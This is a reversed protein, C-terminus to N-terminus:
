NVFYKKQIEKISEEELEEKKEKGADGIARLDKDSLKVLELIKAELYEKTNLKPDELVEELLAHLLWGIRPGAKEGTVEMIRKGDIALMGVSIPDRLAEEIMAQYKRLRFPQEKPRGTGIRDCIRLEILKEINDRGVNTIIRRVASLTIKDPDSFFMHWRVMREANEITERSFKLAELAKKTIRAGVVDHGHFTWDHKEDSWRRSAPKGIDHFLAALRVEFSWNKDAAHQLARINHEFVDFSHAQNQEVGIGKELDPAIYGLIGISQALIIANMPKASNLIRVFEDRIREKSIKGLQSACKQMAAKTEAEITFGLEASIRIARMIRLADEAFREEPEGVARVVGAATDKIGGYLDLLKKKAPDYAMANITFDRRKLDDEIHKSFIVNDPRRADSYKGELRYPTAEVIKVNENTADDNVIGVTGFENTYFTNEFLSQIEEPNANTTIDWDKPTRGLLLDRVCGGVIWVEFGAKTFTETIRSVEAPIQDELLQM